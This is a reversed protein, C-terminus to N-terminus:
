QHKKFPISITFMKMSWPNKNQVYLFLFIPYVQCSDLCAFMKHVTQETLM